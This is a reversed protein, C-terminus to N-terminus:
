PNLPAFSTTMQGNAGVQTTITHEAHLISELRDRFARNPSHSYRCFMVTFWPHESTPLWNHSTRLYRAGLQAGDVLNQAAEDVEVAASSDEVSMWQLLGYFMADRLYHYGACLRERESFSEDEDEDEDEDTPELIDKARELLKEVLSECIKTTSNDAPTFVLKQRCPLLEDLHSSLHLLAYGDGHKGASIAGPSWKEFTAYSASEDDEDDGGEEIADMLARRYGGILSIADYHGGISTTDLGEYAEISDADEWERFPPERKQLKTHLKKLAAASSKDCQEQEQAVVL